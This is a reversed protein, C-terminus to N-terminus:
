RTVRFEPEQRTSLREWTLERDQSAKRAIGEQTSRLLRGRQQILFELRAMEQAVIFELQEGHQPAAKVLKRHFWMVPGHQDVISDIEKMAADVVIEMEMDTLVREQAEDVLAKHVEARAVATRRGRLLDAIFGALVAQVLGLMFEIM